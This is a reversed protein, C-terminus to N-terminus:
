ECPYGNLFNKSDVMRMARGNLRNLYRQLLRDFVTIAAEIDQVSRYRTRIQTQGDNLSYEEYNATATADAAKLILADIIEQIADVREAMTTKSELYLGASDYIVM